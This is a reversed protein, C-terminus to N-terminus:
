GGGGENALGEKAVAPRVAYGVAAATDVPAPDEETTPAPPDDPNAVVMLIDDCVRGELGVGNHCGCDTWTQRFDDCHLFDPLYLSSSIIVVFKQVFVRLESYTKEKRCTKYDNDYNISIWIELCVAM